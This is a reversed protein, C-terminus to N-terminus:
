VGKIKVNKLGGGGGGGGGGMGDWEGEGSWNERWQGSVPTRKPKDRLKKERITESM